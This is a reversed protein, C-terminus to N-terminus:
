VTEVILGNQNESWYSTMINLGWGRNGISLTFLHKKVHSNLFKLWLINCINRSSALLIMGVQPFHSDLTVNVLWNGILGFMLLEELLLVQWMIHLTWKQHLISKHNCAIWVTRGVLATEYVTSTEQALTNTMCLRMYLCPFSCLDTPTPKMLQVNQKKSINADEQDPFTMVNCSHTWSDM